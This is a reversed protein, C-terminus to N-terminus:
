LQCLSVFIGGYCLASGLWGSRKCIALGAYWCLVIGVALGLVGNGETVFLGFFGPLLLNFCYVIHWARTRDTESNILFRNTM